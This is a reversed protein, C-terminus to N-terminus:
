GRLQGARAAAALAPPAGLRVAYEAARDAESKRSTRAYAQALQLYIAPRGPDVKLAQVLRKEAGLFDRAAISGMALGILAAVNDPDKVLIASFVRRAAAPRSAALWVAATSMLTGVDPDGEAKLLWPAALSPEGRLVHFAGHALAGWGRDPALKLLADGLRPLPEAEGLAVHARTKIRLATVDEPVHFLAANAAKLASAPSRDLLMLALEALGQAKWAGGPWPPPRYGHKRLAYVMMADPKEPIEAPPSPAPRPSTPADVVALRRGVLSRDELGFRALVTPAIDLVGAGQIEPHPAVGSNATLIVGPSSRWGASVLLVLCEKGVQRALAGVLSDLFRWASSVVNRYRAEPRSDFALRVQHLWPHHVFVADIAPQDLIWAAASQITAAQAMGLAIAEVCEDGVPDIAALDPFLPALMSGTIKSVHVRRNRLAERQADPVCRRPLAWDEARISSSQAFRTDIHLGPWDAGPRTAPWAVSATRVGAAELRAWAPPARWSSKGTPRLGGPWEEENRWVGHVDPEVGAAVSAWAAPGDTVPAGSLWSACGQARLAAMEPLAGSQTGTEFGAWDMGAVGILLLSTM